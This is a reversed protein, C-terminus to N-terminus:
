VREASTRLSDLYSKLDVLPAIGRDGSEYEPEWFAVATYQYLSSELMWMDGDLGRVSDKKPFDLAKELLDLIKRHQIESLEISETTAVDKWEYGGYGEYVKVTLVYPTHRSVEYVEPHDFSPVVKIRLISPLFFGPDTFSVLRGQEACASLFIVVLFLILKNMIAYLTMLCRFVPAFRTTKRIVRM